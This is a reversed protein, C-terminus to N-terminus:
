SSRRVYEAAGLGAVCGEGMAKAIQFPPGCVDGAAFVGEVNTRQKRDTKVFRLSEPDLEVGLGGALGLVGKAGLEIFVGKVAIVEGGELEVAEL